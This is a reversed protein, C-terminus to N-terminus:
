KAGCSGPKQAGCTPAPPPPPPTGCKGAPAPPPPPPPSGCQGCPPAAPKSPCPKEKFAYGVIGCAVRAGANGTLKSEPCTGKGLDDADAHVVVSRGIISKDGHLTIGKDQFEVKAVGSCDATVNGLDGAHRHDECDTPAGHESNNPNFHPGATTCGNTNDGFEHIHFGHLGETLGKIEGTIAVPCEPTNQSLKVVGNVNEGNLVCVAEVPM